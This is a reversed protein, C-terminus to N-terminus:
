SYQELPELSLVGCSHLQCTPKPNHLTLKNKSQRQVPLCAHIVHNINHNINHNMRAHTYAKRCRLNTM